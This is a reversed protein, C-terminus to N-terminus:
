ISSATSGVSMIQSFLSYEGLSLVILDIMIHIIMMMMSVPEKKKMKKRETMPLLATSYKGAVM